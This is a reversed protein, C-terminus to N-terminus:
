RTRSLLSNLPLYFMILQGEGKEEEIKIPYLDSLHDRTMYSVSCGLYQEWLERITGGFVRLEGLPRTLTIPYFREIEPPDFLIYNM